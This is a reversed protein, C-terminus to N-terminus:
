RHKSIRRIRTNGVKKVDVKKWKQKDKQQRNKSRIRVTINKTKGEKSM